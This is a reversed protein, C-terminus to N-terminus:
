EIYVEVKERRDDDWVEAITLKGAAGLESVMKELEDVKLEGINIERDKVNIKFDQPFMSHVSGGFRVFTTVVSWPIDVRVRPETKGESFVRVRLHKATGKDDKLADILRAAEDATIKKEELLRLVKIMEEKGPAM